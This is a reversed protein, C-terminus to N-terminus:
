ELATEVRRHRNARTRKEICVLTGPFILTRAPNVFGSAKRPFVYAYADLGSLNISGLWGEVAVRVATEDIVAKGRLTQGVESLPIFPAVFTAALRHQAEDHTLNGADRWAKAMAQDVRSVRARRGISQWAQKAEIAYDGSGHAVYLDCRGRVIRGPDVQDDPIVGRKTTSFEELASWGKTRWAAGALISLSARENYWWCNDEYERRRCFDMVAGTWNRLLPYLGVLPRKTVAALLHARRM